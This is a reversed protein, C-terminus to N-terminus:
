TLRTRICEVRLPPVLAITEKLTNGELLDYMTNVAKSALSPSDQVCVFACSAPHPDTTWQDFCAFVLGRSRLPGARREAVQRVNGDATGAICIIRAAGLDASTFRDGLVFPIGSGKLREIAGRRREREVPNEDGYLIIFAEAGEAIALSVMQEASSANDTTVTPQEAFDPHRDLFLLPFSRQALRALETRGQGMPGPIVIAGDTVGQDLRRLIYVYREADDHCLM